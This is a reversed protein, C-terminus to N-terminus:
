VDVDDGGNLTNLADAVYLAWTHLCVGHSYPQFRLHHLLVVEHRRVDTAHQGLLINFCSRTCETFTRVHGVLIGHAIRSSQLAFFLESVDDNRAIGVSVRQFQLIDGLYFQASQLVTHRHLVVVNRRHHTHNLLNSTRISVFNGHVHLLFQFFM